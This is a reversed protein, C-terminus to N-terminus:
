ILGEARLATRYLPMAAATRTRDEEDASNSTYDPTIIQVPFSSKAQGDGQGANVYEQVFASTRSATFGFPQAVSTVDLIM